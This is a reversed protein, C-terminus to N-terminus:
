KSFGIEKLGIIGNADPKERKLVFFYVDHRGSIPKELVGTVEGTTKVSGTSPCATRCIIPGARSDLRVEIEGDTIEATYLYRFKKIHTLDINKLLVYAKHVGPTLNDTFRKFGPHEDAYITKVDANRITLVDAGKLPGVVKGGNDTYSAVITYQGRPEHEYFPLNLQGSLPISTRKKKKDTLSYIYKVIDEAEKVSLQPHASMVHEKGWSGGGGGIIKAALKQISGSEKKYRNAIEIYSPGVAKKDAIHCSKCDSKAMIKKGQYDVEVFTTKLIGKDNDSPQPNYFYFASVKGLDTKGDEKDSIKVTYRFPKNKWAFSKNDPSSIVVKPKTNGVKVTLTDTAAFGGKDSVKLVCHYIGPHTYTFKADRTEAGINKGDFLWKYTISDEDDLDKSGRGSFSVTLPLQGAIEKIEPISGAESTLFRTRSLSDMIVSDLINARALPMRNGTFYEIKVLRADANSAGYVSGYELMYLLGDHGFAMDIPRRFDGNAAMFPESRTYNEDEDFKLNFVWNRMWDAVFLTGNYYEPFKNPSSANPDYQYFDGVIACRGGVGLEPFKESAAYPYAIIPPTAPPLINLGTNNVSNNVPAKPDFKAGPTNTVFDWRSYPRNEGVFYPWGFNGPKKAQNFEDYGRPGRESDEGADPGVDGWYVVSTVPNVAIRYPNRAGMAYIEPKTKLIGPAFLNGEPISYTGDAEPHIRLIKGKLDNTNGASRQADLSYYEKGPREDLPAYGDSPFPSTGDGTSLFLNGHRDWALSGGHHSGSNKQVPVTLLIKESALDPVNNEGLTFRSLNFHLNDENLGGPAYYLYIWRNQIFAPDLTVGILGTNGENTIPFKYLLRSKKTRTDYMSLKGLMQTFFIRGDKSVALEMPFESLHDALVTKVFRDQDPTVRAYAKSFDKKADGIAYEIGGALHAIFLPDSYSEDTHGLGTYFARGGDYEHYWSIPHSAGNTGGEYTSEDLSALVKIGPYFSKYNYWEDAREWSEPLMSSAPHNKDLVVVTAMRVNPNSPHSEFYAGVLNGYWPWDYETDAASHIGVFGGGSQVFREFAAQQEANLVNGTTSMFIVADYKRLSEDNFDSANVATDNIYNKEKGIKRIAAVGLPISSHHWGMTKTFV